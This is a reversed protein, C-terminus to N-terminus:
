TAIPNAQFNVLKAMIRLGIQQQQTDNGIWGYEFVDKSGDMSRDVAVYLLSSGREARFRPLSMMLTGCPIGM